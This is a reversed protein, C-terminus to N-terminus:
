VVVNPMTSISRAGSRLIRVCGSETCRASSTCRSLCDLCPSGHAVLGDLLEHPIESADAHLEVGAAPPWVGRYFWESVVRPAPAEQVQDLPNDVAESIRALCSSFGPSEGHGLGVRGPCDADARVSPVCPNPVGRAARFNNRWGFRPEHAWQRRHSRLGWLPPATSAITLERSQPRRLAAVRRRRPRATPDRRSRCDQRRHRRSRKPAQPEGVETLAALSPRASGDAMRPTRTQPSCSHLGWDSGGSQQRPAMSRASAPSLAQSEDARSRLDSFYKALTEGANTSNMETHTQNPRSRPYTDPARRVLFLGDSQALTGSHGRPSDRTSRHSNGTRRTRAQLSETAGTM